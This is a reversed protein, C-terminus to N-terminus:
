PTHSNTYKQRYETPSVGTIRKFALYFSTKGSYGVLEAIRTVLEDTERLLQKAKEIRYQVIYSFITIGCEDSFRLNAYGPSLYAIRAVDNTTIPEMYQEQIFARMTAVSKSYSEQESSSNTDPDPQTDTGTQVDEYAVVPIATTNTTISELAMQAQHYLTPFDIFNKSANSYGMNTCLNMKAEIDVCLMALLNPVPITQDHLILLFVGHCHELMMLIIQAGTFAGELISQLYAYSQQQNESNLSNNLSFSVIYMDSPEQLVLGLRTLEDRILAEDTAHFLLRSTYLSLAAKKYLKQQSQVQLEEFQQQQEQQLKLLVKNMVEILADLQVPKLLYDFIRLKLAERAYKFESYNSIFIIKIDPKLQYLQSSLQIGDMIPMSIDTIVLDPLDNKAARLLEKGNHYAGILDFDFNEWDTKESLEQLIFPNDDAIMLKFM